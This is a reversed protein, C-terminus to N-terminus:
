KSANAKKAKDKKDKEKKEKEKKEKEKKEKEEKEKKALEKKKEEDDSGENDSGDKDDDKDKDNDNDNDSGDNDKDENKDSKPPEVTKAAPTSEKTENDSGADTENDNDGFAFEKLDDKTTAGISSLKAIELQECKLSIGFTRKGNKDKAKAAWLKSIKIIFRATSQWKLYKNLDTITKTDVPDPKGEDNRVFVHTRVEKTEFDTNFKVKCYLMPPQSPKKKEKKKEDSPDEIIKNLEDPEAPKKVIPVYEYLPAYKGLVEDKNKMIYEDIETVMKQLEVCAQQAPDFPVKVFDRDADTKYYEGLSPIGYQSFLIERTRFRFASTKENKYKYNCFSIFQKKNKETDLETFKLNKSKFDKIEIMQNPNKKQTDKPTDKTNSKQSM